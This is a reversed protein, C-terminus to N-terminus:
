MRMGLLFLACGLIFICFSHVFFFSETQNKKKKSDAHFSASSFISLEAAPKDVLIRALISFGPLLYLYISLLPPKAKPNLNMQEIENTSTEQIRLVILIIKELKKMSLSNHLRYSIHIHKTQGHLITSQRFNDYEMQPNQKHNEDSM